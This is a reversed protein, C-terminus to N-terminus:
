TDCTKHRRNFGLAFGVINGNNTDNSATNALSLSTIGLDNLSFMEGEGSVGDSNADKWVQLSGWASDSADLTGDANSDLSALAEFGDNALSGDALQFASGFLESGDNVTGDANRDFTLLGDGSSVWGVSEMSGDANIDFQVGQDINLTQIGDGDLDLVLPTTYSKANVTQDSFQLKEIGKIIDTGDRGQVNDVVTITGAAVNYTITYESRQGTFSVTDQNSSGSAIIVDDGSSAAATMSSSSNTAIYESGSSSIFGNNLSVSSVGSAASSYTGNSASATVGHLGDAFDHNLSWNGNSDATATGIVVGNASVTIVNNADSTGHITVTSVDSDSTNDVISTIEPVEPYPSNTLDTEVNFSYSASDGSADKAVVTFSESLDGTVNGTTVTYEYAGTTFNVKLVAGEPTTVGGSPFTASTYTTSGVTISYVSGSEGGFSVNSLVNGSLVETNPAELAANIANPDDAVIIATGGDASAMMNLYNQGSVSIGSGVGVVTLDIGNNDVFNNWANFYSSDVYNMATGNYTNDNVSDKSNLNTTTTTSGSMEVTPDGDSIFFGLTKDASAYGGSMSIGTTAGIAGEYNTGMTNVASYSSGNLSLSGSTSMTLGQLFSVADAASMWGVNTATKGFLSLNVKAHSTDGATGEHSNIMNILAQKSVEFRTSSGVVEKMSASVDFTVVINTYTHVPPAYDENEVAMTANLVTAVPAANTDTDTITGVGSVPSAPNNHDTAAKLTITETSEKIADDVTSVRVIASRVGGPVSFSNDSVSSWTSGGDFSVKMTSINIDSTGSAAGSVDLFVNTSDSSSRSLQVTFDLNGGEAVTPSSVSSVLSPIATSVTDKTITDTSTITNGAVDTSNVSLTLTGDNLSSVDVGSLNWSGDSNLTLGSQVPYFGGEGTDNNAVLTSHRGGASDVDSIDRYLSFNSTSLDQVPGGNVSVNFDYGGQTSSAGNNNYIFADITYYGSESPAFNAGSIVATSYNYNEAGLGDSYTQYSGGGFRGNVITEGGVEFRVADDGYGSFTYTKGAELFM